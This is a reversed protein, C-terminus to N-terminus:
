VSNNHFHSVTVKEKRGKGNDGGTGGRTQRVGSLLEMRVDLGDAALNIEKFILGWWAVKRSM